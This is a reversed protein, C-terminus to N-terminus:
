LQAQFIVKQVQMSDFLEYGEQAQSLPLIKDAM